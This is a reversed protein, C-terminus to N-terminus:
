VQADFLLTRALMVMATTDTAPAHRHPASM